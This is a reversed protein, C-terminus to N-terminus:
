KREGGPASAGPAPAADAAPPAAGGPGGQGPPAAPVPMGNEDVQLLQPTVPTGPIARQLGEVIVHEGAQVGQVERMGQHLAGLTVPRPQVIGDAGVVMVLKRTQDTAIAREPVLVADHKASSPLRIRASLGPTYRGEANDFVARVRISGTAPNLRNDVFDLRGVHPFGQENSLGMLVANPATAAAAVGANARSTYRLYAAESADFYAYVRDVSVITTLVPESVGVLNGAQVEARSIRGAIPAAIRTFGLDLQASALAAEAAKVDSAGNAQAARLQDIEQLSVAQLSVLKEARALEARALKQQTRASTVQAQARAVAAAFPRPDITLLLDGKKVLQGERFHVKDLTGAVRARLEVTQAAELRASFDDFEQVQRRTAPAVSVPPPGMGGGGHGSAGEGGGQGCGALLVALALVPAMVIGGRPLSCLSCRM